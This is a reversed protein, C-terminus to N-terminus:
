WTRTHETDWTTSLSVTTLGETSCSTFCLAMAAIIDFRIIFCLKNTPCGQLGNYPYDIKTHYVEHRRGGIEVCDYDAFKALGIELWQILMPRSQPEALRFCRDDGLPQGDYPQPNGNVLLRHVNEATIPLCLEGEVLAELHGDIKLIEEM